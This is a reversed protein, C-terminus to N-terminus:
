KDKNKEKRAASVSLPAHTLDRRPNIQFQITINTISPNTYTITTIPM